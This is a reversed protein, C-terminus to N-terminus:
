CIDAPWPCNSQCALHLEIRPRAAGGHLIEEAELQAGRGELLQIVNLNFLRSADHTAMSRL